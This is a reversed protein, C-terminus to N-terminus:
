QSHLIGNRFKGSWDGSTELIDNKCIMGCHIDSYSIKYGDMIIEKYDYSIGLTLPDRM